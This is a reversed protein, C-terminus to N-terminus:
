AVKEQLKNIRANIIANHFAGVIYGALVAALTLGVGGDIQASAFGLLGMLIFPLFRFIFQM